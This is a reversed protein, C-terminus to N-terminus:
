TMVPEIQPVPEQDNLSVLIGEIEALIQENSFHAGIIV